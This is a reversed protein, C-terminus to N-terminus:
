GLEGAWLQELFTQWPLVDIGNVQRPDRELSVVIYRQLAREEMLAALGKMDRQGVPAKAKAEIATRQDLIFDVEFGSRSRWYCLEGQRSYDIYSRLEHHIFAEFAEGFEPSRPRLGGRHQLHRVVGVDFFYFKATGIAKRRRSGTWAPLRRALLTDELIQFYERVTSVPLQSDSAIGSYNLMQGDCLAAIELFRGFAPVNRTLGEAAIEERLYDGAYARLDERPEDSLYVPPLLGVSLARRLDFRGRLEHAVFPHLTLSRARGGLLNVGGRRLKRASSGTLVFRTDSSELVLHVEDLLLPLKQIEDIVVVDDGPQILERLTAPRRGLTLYLDSDLLSLVRAGPLVNHV